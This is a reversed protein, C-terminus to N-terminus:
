NDELKLSIIDTYLLKKAEDICLAEEQNRRANM